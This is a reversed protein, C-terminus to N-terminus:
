SLEASVSGIARLRDTSLAGGPGSGAASFADYEHRMKELLTSHRRNIASDPMLKWFGIADRKLAERYGRVYADSSTAIKEPAWVVTLEPVMLAHTELIKGPTTRTAQDV